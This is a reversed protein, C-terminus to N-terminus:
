LVITQLRFCCCGGRSVGLCYRGGLLEVEEGTEREGNEPSDSGHVVNRGVDVQMFYPRWLPYSRPQQGPIITHQKCTLLVCNPLRLWVPGWRLIAVSPALSQRWPTLPALSRVRVRSWAKARGCRCGFILGYTRQPVQPVPMAAGTGAAAGAASAVAAGPMCCAIVRVMAVVPGSLIYEM